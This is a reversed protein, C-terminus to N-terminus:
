WGSNAGVRRDTDGDEGRLTELQSEFRVPQFARRHFNIGCGPRHHIKKAVAVFDTQIHGKFREALTVFFSAEGERFQLRDGASQAHRPHHAGVQLAEDCSAPHM